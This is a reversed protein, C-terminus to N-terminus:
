GKKLLKLLPNSKLILEIHRGYTWELMFQFPGIMSMRVAWQEGRRLARYYGKMRKPWAGSKSVGPTVGAAEFARVQKLRDAESM